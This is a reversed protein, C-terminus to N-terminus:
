SPATVQTRLYPWFGGEYPRVYGGKLKGYSPQLRGDQKKAALYLPGMQVNALAAGLDVEDHEEMGRYLAFCTELFLLEWWPPMQLLASDVTAQAWTRRYFITFASADTVSIQPWIQMVPVPPDATLDYTIAFWYNGASTVVENTRLRLIDHPTTPHLSNVISDTADYGTLDGFDSPLAATDSSASFSVLASAGELWKWTHSETLWRGAHNVLALGTLSSLTGGARGEVHEVVNLTTLSM